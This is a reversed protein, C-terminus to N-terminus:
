GLAHPWPNIEGAIDGRVAHVFGFNNHACQLRACGLFPFRHDGHLWAFGELLARVVRLGSPVIDPPTIDVLAGRVGADHLRRKVADFEAGPPPPAVASGPTQGWPRPPQRDDLFRTHKRHEPWLNYFRLHREFDAPPSAEERPKPLLHQRDLLDLYRWALCAEFVAKRVAVRPDPHCAAGHCYWTSSRGPEPNARPPELTALFVPVGPHGTLDYLQARWAALPVATRITEAWAGDGAPACPPPLEVRPPRGRFLWAAVYADREIVELVAGLAAADSDSACALGTTNGPVAPTGLPFPIYVWPAPVLIPAGTHLDAGQCWHLRTDDGPCPLAHGSRRVQEESFRALLAPRLASDLRSLESFSGQRLAPGPVCAAAYREVAEGVAAALAATRTIGIGGGGPQWSTAQGSLVGTDAGHAAATFLPPEGPQPPFLRVERVIGCRRGILSKMCDPLADAPDEQRERERTAHSDFEPAANAPRHGCGPCDPLKLVQETVIEGTLLDVFRTRGVLTTTECALLYRVCELAAAQAVALAQSPHWLGHRPSHTEKGSFDRFLDANQRNSSMRRHLCQFCATEGPVFFPGIQARDPGCRRVLLWPVGRTRCCSGIRSFGADSEFGGIGVVLDADVDDGGGVEARILHSRLAEALELRGEGYGRVYVRASQLRATLPAIDAAFRSLYRALFPPAGDDPPFWLVGADLLLALTAQVDAAPFHRLFAHLEIVTMPERPPSLLPMLADLLAPNAVSEVPVILDDGGRFHPRRDPATAAAYVLFPKLAVRRSSLPMDKM